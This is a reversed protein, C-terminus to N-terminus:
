GIRAMHCGLEVAYSTRYLGRSHTPERGVSTLLPRNAFPLFKDQVLRVAVPWRSGHENSRRCMARCRGEAELQRQIFAPPRAVGSSDQWDTCIAPNRAAANRRIFSRGLDQLSLQRATREGNRRSAGHRPAVRLFYEGGHMWWGKGHRRTTSRGKRRDPRRSPAATSIHEGTCNMGAKGYAAAQPKVM